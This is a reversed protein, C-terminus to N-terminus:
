AHRSVAGRKSDTKWRIAGYQGMASRIVREFAKRPDAFRKELAIAYQSGCQSAITVAVERLAMAHFFGLRECKPFFRASANPLDFRITLGYSGDRKVISCADFRDTDIRRDFLAMMAVEFRHRTDGKTEVWFDLPVYVADHNLRAPGPEFHELLGRAALRCMERMEEDSVDIPPDSINMAPEDCM